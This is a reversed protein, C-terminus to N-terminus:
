LVPLAGFSFSSKYVFAGLGIESIEFLVITIDLIAFFFEKTDVILLRPFFLIFGSYSGWLVKEDERIFDFDIAWTPSLSICFSLLLLDIKTKFVKL